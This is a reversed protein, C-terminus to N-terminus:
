TIVLKQSPFQSYPQIFRNFFPHSRPNDPDNPGDWDILMFNTKRELESQPSTSSPERAEASANSSELDKEETAPTVSVASKRVDTQSSKPSALRTSSVVTKVVIIDNTDDGLFTGTQSMPPSFYRYREPVVYDARQDTFPLLCGRSLKNILQGLTSDRILDIM